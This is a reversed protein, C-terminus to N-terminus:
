FIAQCAERDPPEVTQEAFMKLRDLLIEEYPFDLFFLCQRLDVRKWNVNVEAM